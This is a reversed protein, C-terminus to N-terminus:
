PHGMTDVSTVDFNANVYVVVESGDAQQVHAEYASGTDVDNEVRQVTGGSVKAAAAAKVKAATDGTLLTETKGDSEHGGLSPDRQAAAQSSSSSPSSAASAATTSSGSSAANAIASAGLASAGIAALVTLKNRIDPM